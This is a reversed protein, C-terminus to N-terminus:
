DMESFRVLCLSLVAIVVLHIEFSEKKGIERALGEGNRRRRDIPVKNGAWTTHNTTQM